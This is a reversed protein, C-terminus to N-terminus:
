RKGLLNHSIGTLSASHLSDVKSLCLACCEPNNFWKDELGPPFPTQWLFDCIPQTQTDRAQKEGNQQMEWHPVEVARAGAEPPFPAPVSSSLLFIHRVAKFSDRDRTQRMELDGRLLTKVKNM